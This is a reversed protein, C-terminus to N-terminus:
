VRARRLVAWSGWGAEAEIADWHGPLAAIVDQASLHLPGDPGLQNIWLLAGEPALVRATEAPFLPMDIAAVAAVSGDALPLAGADARM